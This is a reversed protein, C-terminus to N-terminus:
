HSALLRNVHNNTSVPASASAAAKSCLRESPSMRLTSSSGGFVGEFPLQSLLPVVGVRSNLTSPREADVVAVIQGLLKRTIQRVQPRRYRAVPM